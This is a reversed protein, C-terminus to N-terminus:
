ISKKNAFVFTKNRSLKSDSLMRIVNEKAHDPCKTESTTNKRFCKRPGRSEDMDDACACKYGREFSARRDIERVRVKVSRNVARTTTRLGQHSRNAEIAVAAVAVSRGRRGVVFSKKRSDWEDQIPQHYRRRSHRRQPHQWLYIRRPVRDDRASFGSEAVDGGWCRYYHQLRLLPLIVSSRRHYLPGRVFEEIM